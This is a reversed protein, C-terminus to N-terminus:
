SCNLFFLLTVSDLAILYCVIERLVRVTLLPLRCVDHELWTSRVLFTHSHLLRRNKTIFFFDNVSLGLPSLSILRYDWRAEMKQKM